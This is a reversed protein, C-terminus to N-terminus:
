NIFTFQGIIPLPQMKGNIANIIGIIMLVFAGLYLAYSIFAVYVGVVPIIKVVFYIFTPLCFGFLWLTLGQNAHYKAFPSGKAALLPVIFLFIIYAVAGVFKNKQADAADPTNASHDM